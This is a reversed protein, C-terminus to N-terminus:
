GHFGDRAAVIEAPQLGCCCALARAVPKTAAFGRQAAVAALSNLYEELNTYGDGDRDAASDAPDEPNLGHAAEWADPM